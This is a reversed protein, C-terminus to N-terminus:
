TADPDRKFANSYLLNGWHAACAECVCHTVGYAKIVRPVGVVKQITIPLRIFEFSVSLQSDKEIM